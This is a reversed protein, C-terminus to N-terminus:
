PVAPTSFICANNGDDILHGNGDKIACFSKLRTDKLEGIQDQECYDRTPCWREWAGDDLIGEFNNWKENVQTEDLWSKYITLNSICSDFPTYLGGTAEEYPDCPPVYAGIWTKAEEPIRPGWTKGDPEPPFLATDIEQVMVVPLGEAEGNYRMILQVQAQNGGIGDDVQQFQFIIMKCESPLGAQALPIKVVVNALGGEGDQLSMQAWLHNGEVWDVSIQLYSKVTPLPPPNVEEYSHWITGTGAAGCPANPWFLLSFPQDRNEGILV